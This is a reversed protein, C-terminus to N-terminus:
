RSIHKVIVRVWVTQVVVILPLKGPFASCGSGYYISHFLAVFVYLHPLTAFIWIETKIIGVLVFLLQYM